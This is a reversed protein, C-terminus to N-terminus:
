FEQRHAKKQAAALNETLKRNQQNVSMNDRSLQDVKQKYFEIVKRNEEAQAPDIQPQQQMRSQTEKLEHSFWEAQNRQHQAHSQARTVDDQAARLAQGHEHLKRRLDDIEWSSGGGGGGGYQQQSALLEHLRAVEMDRENLLKQTEILKTLINESYDKTKELERQLSNPSM